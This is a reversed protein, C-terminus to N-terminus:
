PKAAQIASSSGVKRAAMEVHVCAASRPMSFFPSRRGM